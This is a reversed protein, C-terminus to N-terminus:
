FPLDDTEPGGEPLEEGTWEVTGKKLAELAAGQRDFDQLANLAKQRRVPELEQLMYNTVMLRAASNILGASDLLQEIDDQETSREPASEKQPRPAGTLSTLLSHQGTEYVDQDFRDALKFVDEVTWQMDPNSVAGEAAQIALFRLAMEQSHQRLIRAAREPDRESEPQWNSSRGTSRESSGSSRPSAGLEKTAEFDMKFKESFKGPEIHGAVRDGVQPAKSEPKRSWEVARELVGDEAEFDVTYSLFSGGQKSHWERPEEGVHKVTYVTM